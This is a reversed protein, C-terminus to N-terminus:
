AYKSDGGHQFISSRTIDALDNTLFEHAVIKTFPQNTAVANAQFFVPYIV